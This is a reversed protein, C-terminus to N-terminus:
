FLFPQCYSTILKLKDILLYQRPPLLTLYMTLVYVYFLLKLEQGKIISDEKCLVLIHLLYKCQGDRMMMSDDAAVESCKDLVRVTCNTGV